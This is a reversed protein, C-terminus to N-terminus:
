GKSTEVCLQQSCLTSLTGSDVSMGLSWLLVTTVVQLVGTVYCITALLESTNTVIRLCKLPM